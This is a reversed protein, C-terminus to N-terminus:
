QISHTSPVVAIHELARRLGNNVHRVCWEPHESPDLFGAHHIGYRVLGMLVCFAYTTNTLGLQREAFQWYAGATPEVHDALAVDFATNSQVAQEYAMYFVFDIV